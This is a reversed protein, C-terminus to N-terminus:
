SSSASKAQNKLYERLLDLARFRHSIENKAAPDMEAYTLGGGELPQFVPDWGFKGDGRAPVIHGDTKGEFLIPEHGPGASYAFTCVATAETTDFGVLLKNLGEHGLEKLFWKIYVGPLGNLAKFCLATDETICPGGIKEAAMRCKERSVEQTSGQLEPIDLSQSEVEIPEGAALIARVEKLKNANGTVFVVKLPSM